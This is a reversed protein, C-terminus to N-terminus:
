AWSASTASSPNQAGNVGYSPCRGLIGSQRFVPKDAQASLPTAVRQVSDFNTRRGVRSTVSCLDFVQTACLGLTQTGQKQGTENLLELVEEGRENRRYLDGPLYGPVLFVSIEFEGGCGLCNRYVWLACSGTCDGSFYCGLAVYHDM